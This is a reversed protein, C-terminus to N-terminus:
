SLDKNEDSDEDNERKKTFPNNIGNGDTGMIEMFLRAAKINGATAFRYLNTIMSAIMARTMEREGNPLPDTDLELLHRDITPRSLGTKEALETKSPLRQENILYDHITKVILRHNNEWFSDNHNQVPIM